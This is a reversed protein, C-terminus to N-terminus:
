DAAGRATSQFLVFIHAVATFLRALAATLLAPGLWFGTAAGARPGAPDTAARSGAGHTAAATHRGRGRGEHVAGALAQVRAESM